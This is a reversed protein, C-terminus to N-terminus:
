APKREVLGADVLLELQDSSGQARIEVRGDDVLGETHDELVLFVDTDDVRQEIVGMDVLREGIRLLAYRLLALPASVCYFESDERVPYAYRARELVREFRALDEPRRELAARASTTGEDLALIFSM